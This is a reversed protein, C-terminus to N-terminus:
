YCSYTPRDDCSVGSKILLTRLDTTVPFEASAKRTWTVHFNMRWMGSCITLTFFTCQLTGYRYLRNNAPLHGCCDECVCVPRLTILKIPM